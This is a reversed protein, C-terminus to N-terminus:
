RDSDRAIVPASCVRAALQAFPPGYGVATENRLPEIRIAIAAAKENARAWEVVFRTFGVYGGMRNRANVEGCVGVRDAGLDHKAQMRWQASRPDNLFDAIEKRSDEFLTVHWAPKDCSVLVVLAIALFSKM